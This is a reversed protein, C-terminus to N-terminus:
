KSLSALTNITTAIIVTGFLYALFAHRLVTARIEKAQIENDSVQFTMGVTFALYAFDSYKPASRENFGIGGETQGYYMRAYKLLYTVHVMAWSLIISILGFAMDLVKLAGSDHGVGTILVAVAGLSIFSAALLLADAAVRGPNERLAHQRTQDTDMPWISILTWGGYILVVADWAALPAFRGMNLSVLVVAVVLGATAAFSLRKASSTFQQSKPM